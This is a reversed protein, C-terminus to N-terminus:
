QQRKAILKFIHWGPHGLKLWGILYPLRPWKVFENVFTLTLSGCKSLNLALKCLDANLWVLYPLHGLITSSTLKAFRWLYMFM